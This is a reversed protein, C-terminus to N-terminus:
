GVLQADEDGFPLWEQPTRPTIEGRWGAPPLPNLIRAWRSKPTMPQDRRRTGANAASHNWDGGSTLAEQVWGSAKLSTGPEEVLIYTQIKVFGMERAVRACAGYLFSCAMPTGDSVLRTVEAVLYADIERSVPRGVVAAGCVAGDLLAGLAFRYGQVPQHHRHWRAILLNAEALTLPLVQWSV